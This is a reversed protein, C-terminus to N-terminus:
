TELAFLVSIYIGNEILIVTFNCCNSISTVMPLKVEENQSLIVSGNNIILNDSYCFRDFSLTKNKYMPNERNLRSM